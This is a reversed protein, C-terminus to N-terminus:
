GRGHRARQRDGWETGLPNLNSLMIDGQSILGNSTDYHIIGMDSGLVGDPGVSWVQWKLGGLGRNRLDNHTHPYYSYYIFWRKDIKQTTIDQIFLDLPLQAIYAVPTTLKQPEHVISWGSPPIPNGGNDIMYANEAFGVSRLDSRIRAINARLRANMFNPVAIAALIGIIAVVILLEILTFARRM